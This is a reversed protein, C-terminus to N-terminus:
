EALRVVVVVHGADTAAFPSRGGLLVLSEGKGLPADVDAWWSQTRPDLVPVKGFPTDVERRGADSVWRARASLDVEARGDPRRGFPRLSVVIGEEVWSTEGRGWAREGPAAGPGSTFPSRVLRAADARGTPPAVLIGDRLPLAAGATRLFLDAQRTEAATLVAWEVTGGEVPYRRPCLRRLDDEAKQPIEHLHVEFRAAAASQDFRGLFNAVARRDTEAGVVLVRDGRLAVMGARPASARLRRLLADPRSTVPHEPDLLPPAAPDEIRAVSPPVLLEDAGHDLPAPPPLPSIKTEQAAGLRVVITVDGAPRGPDPLGALVFGGGPPVSAGAVASSRFVGGGTRGPPSWSVTARLGM